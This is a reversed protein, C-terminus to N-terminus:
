HVDSVDTVMGLEIVERSDLTNRLQELRVDTVMGSETVVM